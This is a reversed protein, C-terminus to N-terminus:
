ESTNDEQWWESGDAHRNAKAWLAAAGSIIFLVTVLPILLAHRLHFINGLILIIPIMFIELSTIISNQQKKGRKM